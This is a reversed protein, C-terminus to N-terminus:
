IVAERITVDEKNKLGKAIGQILKEGLDKLNFTYKSMYDDFSMLRNFCSLADNGPVSISEYYEDFYRKFGHRQFLDSYKILTLPSMLILPKEMKPNLNENVLCEMYWRQLINALGDALLRNDAIVLVPYITMDRDIERDWPFDENRISAVHGAIQGCGIRKPPEVIRKCKNDWDLQITKRVLKNRLEDELLSYDRKEKIFGNIRIDKCEFLIVFDNSKIYYDPYGLDRDSRKHIKKLQEEDFSNYGISPTSKRICNCFLTKEIFSSTFLNGINPHKIQLGDAISMFDFYLGSYIRDTILPRSHVLYDGNSLQFLPKDRFRRYDSNGDKDFEDKSSYPIPPADVAISLEKIVSQSVLGNAFISLDAPILGEGNLSICFLSVLTRIYERWDHIGYKLYFADLLSKCKADGEILEFFMVAQNVQSLYEDQQNYHLIDYSSACNVYTLAALDINQEDHIKFNMQEESIQTVLKLTQYQLRDENEYNDRIKFCTYPMSYAKRLIELSNNEFAVVYEVNKDAERSLFKRIRVFVKHFMPDDSSLMQCIKIAPKNCYERNLLAAMKTIQDRSYQRLVKRYRVRSWFRFVSKFELPSIMKFSNYRSEM